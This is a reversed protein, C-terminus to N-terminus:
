KLNLFFEIEDLKVHYWMKSKCSAKKQKKSNWSNGDFCVDNFKFFYKENCSKIGLKKLGLITSDLKTSLSKCKFLTSILINQFSQFNEFEIPNFCIKVHAYNSGM